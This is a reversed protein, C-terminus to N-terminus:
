LTVPFERDFYRKVIAVISEPTGAAEMNEHDRQNFGPLKNDIVYTEVERRARQAIPRHDSSSGATKIGINGSMTMNIYHRARDGSGIYTMGM